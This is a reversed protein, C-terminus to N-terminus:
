YFTLRRTHAEYRSKNKPRKSRYLARHRGLCGIGFFIMVDIIGVSEMAHM